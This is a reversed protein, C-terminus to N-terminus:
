SSNRNDEDEQKVTVQNKKVGVVGLIIDKLVERYFVDQEVQRRWRDAPGPHRQKKNDAAKQNMKPKM